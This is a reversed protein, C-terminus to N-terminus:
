IFYYIIKDELAAPVQGTAIGLASSLQLSQLLDGVSLSFKECKSQLCNVEKLITKYFYICAHM